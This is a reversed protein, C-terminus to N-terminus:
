GIVVKVLLGFLLCMLIAALNRYIAFKLGFTKRELPFTTLGVAMLSSMLVAVQPLNAGNELLSKGLPFVIFSPVISISGIATAFFIGAIGSSEGIVAGILEPTFVALVLGVFLMIALMDPLSNIFMKLSKKLANVTKERSKVYSIVLLFTSTSYLIVSSVM